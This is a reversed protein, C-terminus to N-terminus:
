SRHTEYLINPLVKEDDRSCPLFSQKRKGKEEESEDAFEEPEEEDRMAKPPCGAAEGIRSFAFKLFM